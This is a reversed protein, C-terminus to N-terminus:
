YGRWFETLNPLTQSLNVGSELNVRLIEASNNEIVGLKDVIGNIKLTNRPGSIKWNLDVMQYLDLNIKSLTKVDIETIRSENVKKVFTRTLLGLIYDDSTPIPRFASVDSSSMGMDWQQYESAIKDNYIM